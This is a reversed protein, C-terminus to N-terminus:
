SVRASKARKRPAGSIPAAPPADDAATHDDLGSLIARARGEIAQTVQAMLPHAGAPMAAVDAAANKAEALAGKALAEVRAILRPANLGVDAAFRQWHRRKLHEGRTKGAIKQAMNRTVHEWALGCMVDYIPALKFGKGSIMMSYNKAHADTNCALVNFVVYDLLNVVDPAQMANRTVAFIEALTPGPIGTQNSEYKASPPKGLAQCFDEQHLRRWRGSQEVRDYRKVMLYTRKGAKGTTVEPANLGLRKALVLCLAENQVGGYLRESDPKLIWTSPAGNIPVCIRDKADIAVGLKTQVGALSMSVGDEGVLFPKSPLEELIKELAKDNPVPRWDATSTTGPKGISLAGATDRGLEALIGIVDEPAAGLQLGIARLQTSEPLLNAAWPLFLKPPVRRPSLPMLLSLPFAGRTSLWIPAYTFSPGDAHVAITGVRRSEYYVAIEAV